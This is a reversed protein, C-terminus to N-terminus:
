DEKNMEAAYGVEDEDNSLLHCCKAIVCECRTVLGPDNQYMEIVQLLLQKMRSPIISTTIFCNLDEIKESNSSNNPEDFYYWAMAKLVNEYFDIVSRVVIKNELYRTLIQEIMILISAININLRIVSTLLHMLGTLIFCVGQMLESDDMNRIIFGSILVHFQATWTEFRTVQNKCQFCRSIATCAIVISKKLDPVVPYLTDATSFNTQFFPKTYSFVSEIIADFHVPKEGEDEDYGYLLHGIFDLLYYRIWPTFNGPSVLIEGLYTPTLIKGILEKRTNAKRISVEASDTNPNDIVPVKVMRMMDLIISPIKTITKNLPYRLERQMCHILTTCKQEEIRDNLSICEKKLENYKNHLNVTHELLGTLHFAVDMTHLPMDKRVCEFTCGTAAHYPCPILLMPCDVIHNGKIRSYDENNDLRRGYWINLSGLVKRPLDQNCFRCTILEEPCCRHEGGPYLCDCHKCPMPRESCVNEHVKIDTGRINIRCDPCVVSRYECNSSLHAALDKLCGQWLCLDYKQKKVQQVPSSSVLGQNDIEVRTECKVEFDGIINNVTRNTVLKKSDLVIRCGPCKSNSQTARQICSRCFGHDEPCRVSDRMVLLCIMCRLDSQSKPVNIFIDDPYGGYIM